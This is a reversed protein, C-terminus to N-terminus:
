IFIILFVYILSRRQASADAVARQTILRLGAGVRRWERRGSAREASRARQQKHRLRQRRQWNALVRRARAPSRASHDWSSCDFARKEALFACCVVRHEDLFRSFTPLFPSFTGLTGPLDESPLHMILISTLVAILFCMCVDFRLIVNRFWMKLVECNVCVWFAAGGVMWGSGVWLWRILGLNIVLGM